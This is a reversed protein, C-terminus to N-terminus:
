LNRKSGFLVLLILIAFCFNLCVVKRIIFNFETFVKIGNPTLPYLNVILIKM